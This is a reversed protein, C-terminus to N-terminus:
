PKEVTESDIMFWAVKQESELVIPLMFLSPAVLQIGADKWRATKISNCKLNPLAM